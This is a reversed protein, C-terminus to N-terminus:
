PSSSSSSSSLSLSSSPTPTSSVSPTNRCLPCTSNMRLWEDICTAHFYHNCEPISRLTEKPLYEALCITCTADNPKPLRGSDGLVTKPYSNITPGDLGTLIHAPRPTITPNSLGRGTSHHRSNARIRSCTYCVLGILSM